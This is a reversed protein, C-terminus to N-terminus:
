LSLKESPESRQEYYYTRISNKDAWVMQRGWWWWWQGSWVGEHDVSHWNNNRQRATATQLGDGRFQGFQNINFPRCRSKMLHIIFSTDQDVRNWQIFSFTSPLFSPFSPRFWSQLHSDFTDSSISFYNISYLEDEWLSIWDWEFNYWKDFQLLNIIPVTVM